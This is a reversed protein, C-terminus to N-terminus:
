LELSIGATATQTKAIKYDAFINIFGLKLKAGLMFAISNEGDLDISNKVSQRGVSTDFEYEYNVTTTSSEFSLGAYPVVAIGIGVQKSAYLGFQTAKSEFVDGIKLSSYSFGLAFDVPIIKLPALWAAPNHTIGFGFYNFKGLDNLEISPLFRIKLDTGYISGVGLQIAASPLFSIDKLFGHVANIVVTDPVVGVSADGEFFLKVNESENGIITPGSVSVTYENNLLKDKAIQKQAGTLGSNNALQEAQADTFRFKASTSFSKKADDFFAANGIIKLEINLGLMASSPVGTVWGSNMNSGLGSVIPAVYSQVADGSLNSLTNELDSRDGSSNSQSYINFSLLSLLFIAIIIKKM